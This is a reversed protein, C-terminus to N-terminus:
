LCSVLSLLCSVLSLLCSVLSLSLCPPSAPLSPCFTRVQSAQLLKAEAEMARREAALRAATAAAMEEVSPAWIVVGSADVATPHLSSTCAGYAYQGTPAPGEPTSTLAVPELSLKAGYM